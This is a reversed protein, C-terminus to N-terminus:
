GLFLVIYFEKTKFYAFRGKKSEVIEDVHREGDGSGSDSGDNSGVLEAVGHQTGDKSPKTTPSMEASASSTPMASDVSLDKNSAHIAM